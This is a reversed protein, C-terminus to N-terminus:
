SAGAASVLLLLLLLCRHLRRLLPRLQRWCVLVWGGRHRLGAAAEQLLLLLQRHRQAQLM